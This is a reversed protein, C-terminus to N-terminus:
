RRGGLRVVVSENLGAPAYRSLRTITILEFLYLDFVQEGRRADTRPELACFLWSHDGRPRRGCIVYENKDSHLLEDPITPLRDVTLDASQAM